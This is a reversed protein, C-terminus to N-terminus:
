KIFTSANIKKKIGQYLIIFVVRFNNVSFQDVKVAARVRRLLILSLSLGAPIRNIISCPASMINGKIGVGSLPWRLHKAQSQGCVSAPLRGTFLYSLNLYQKWAPVIRCKKNEVPSSFSLQPPSACCPSNQGSGAHADVHVHQLQHLPSFFLLCSFSLLLHLVHTHTAERSSREGASLAHKVPAM